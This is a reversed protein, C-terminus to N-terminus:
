RTPPTSALLGTDRHEECVARSSRRRYTAVWEALARAHAAAFRGRTARGYLLAQRRASAIRRRALAKGTNLFLQWTLAQLLSTRLGAPAAQAAGLVAAIGDPDYQATSLVFMETLAALADPPACRLGHETAVTLADALDDAALRWEGRKGVAASRRLLARFTRAPTLDGGRESWPLFADLPAEGHAKRLVQADFAHQRAWVEAGDIRLHSPGREGQHQRQRFLIEPLHEVRFTRALRLLMDFDQSRPLLPDFPGVRDYCDRRVLMAGQFVSVRMAQQLHFDDADFVRTPPLSEREVGDRAAFRVFDGVAFGAEPAKELGSALLELAHPLAVDDDDFIWIAAGAAHRIAHNLATSKGGNDQRLYRVRPAFRAVVEPTEDTSGDDVVIVERAPRTQALLSPLSSSLYGARNYTPVIATVDVSSDM